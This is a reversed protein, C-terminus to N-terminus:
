YMVVAADIVSLKDPKKDGSGDKSCHSVRLLFTGEIGQHKTVALSAQM